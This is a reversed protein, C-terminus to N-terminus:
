CHARGQRTALAIGEMGERLLLIHGLSDNYAMVAPGFHQLDNFLLTRFWLATVNLYLDQSCANGQGIHQRTFPLITSTM